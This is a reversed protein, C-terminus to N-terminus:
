ECIKKSTPLGRSRGLLIRYGRKYISKKSTVSKEITRKISRSSFLSSFALLLLFFLRAEDFLLPFHPALQAQTIMMAIRTHWGM